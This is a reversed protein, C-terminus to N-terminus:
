RENSVDGMNEILLSGDTIMVVKLVVPGRSNYHIQRLSEEIICLVEKDLGEFWNDVHPNLDVGYAAGILNVKSRIEEELEAAKNTTACWTAYQSIVDDVYEHIYRHADRYDILLVDPLGTIKIQYRIMFNEVLRVNDLIIYDHEM